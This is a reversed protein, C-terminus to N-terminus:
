LRAAYQLWQIHRYTYQNYVTNVNIRSLRYLGQDNEFRIRLHKGKSYNKQLSLSYLCGKNKVCVIGSMEQTGINHWEGHM